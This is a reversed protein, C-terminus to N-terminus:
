EGGCFFARPLRLSCLLFCCGRLFFSFFFGLLSYVSKVQLRAAETAGEGGLHQVRRLGIAPSGGTDRLTVDASLFDDDSIRVLATTRATPEVVFLFVSLADNISEQVNLRTADVARGAHIVSRFGALKPRSWSLEITRM